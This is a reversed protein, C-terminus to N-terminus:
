SPAMPVSACLGTAISQRRGFLRPALHQPKSAFSVFRDHDAVAFNFNHNARNRAIRHADSDMRGIFHPYLAALNKQRLRTVGRTHNIPQFIFRLHSIDINEGALFHWDNKRNPITPGLPLPFVM